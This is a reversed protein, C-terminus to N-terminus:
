KSTSIKIVQGRGDAVVRVIRAIPRGGPGLAQGKFTLLFHQGAAPAAAGPLKAQKGDTPNQVLPKADKMEPFQRYVQKAITEIQATSLNSM